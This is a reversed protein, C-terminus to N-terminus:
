PIRWKNKKKIVCYDDIRSFISYVTNEWQSHTWNSFNNNKEKIAEFGKTKMNKVILKIYIYVYM